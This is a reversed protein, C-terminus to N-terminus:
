FLFFFIGSISFREILSIELETSSVPFIIRVEVNASFRLFPALSCAGRGNLNLSLSLLPSLRLLILCSFHILFEFILSSFFFPFPPEYTLNATLEHKIKRKQPNQLSPFSPSFHSSPFLSLPTKAAKKGKTEHFVSWFFFPPGWTELM